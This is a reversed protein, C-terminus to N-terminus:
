EGLSGPVSAQGDDNKSDDGWQWCHIKGSERVACGHWSGVSVSRYVGSPAGISGAYGDLGLDDTDDGVELTTRFCDIEGSARVACALTAGLSVSRYTQPPVDVQGQGEFFGWCRLEGTDRIGCTHAGGVSISHYIGGPTGDIRGAGNVWWCDVDGTERVACLYSHGVSVTRYTGSPAELGEVTHSGWCDIEGTERVACILGWRNPSMGMMLLTGTNDSVSVSRYAAGVLGSVRVQVDRCEIVDSARPDPRCREFETDGWCLLEGATTVACTRDQGASIWRFDEAPADTQGEDNLGWCSVEGTDLLACTHRDGTSVMVARSAGTPTYSPTATTRPTEDPAEAGGRLASHPSPTPTPSASDATATPQSAVAPATPQSSTVTPTPATADAQSEDRSEAPAPERTAGTVDSPGDSPTGRCAVLVTAALM